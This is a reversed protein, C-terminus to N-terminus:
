IDNKMKLIVHLAQFVFSKLFEQFASLNRSLFPRWGSFDPIGQGSFTFNNGNTFDNVAPAQLPM